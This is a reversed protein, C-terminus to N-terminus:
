FVKPRALSEKLFTILFKFLYPTLLYYFFLINFTQVNHEVKDAVAAGEESNVNYMTYNWTENNFQM